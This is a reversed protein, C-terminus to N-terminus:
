SYTGGDIAGWSITDSSATYILAGDSSGGGDLASLTNATNAVLVSGKAVASLGTGGDAVALDTIGTISGGTIAVSSDELHAVLTGTTISLNGTTAGTFSGTGLTFKDASEDYGIFANDASGREIVIGSDNAPTGSTGTGLELLTDAVTTNTTAITTTTGNVTLDGAITVNNALAMTVKVDTGVKTVTATLQNNTGLIQLDDSSLTVDQTGTDGDVTLTGSSAATAVSAATLRGQADVTIVPIQTSSGYSAATVSTDALTVTASGSTAGGTLGTGAVVATIDGANATWGQDNNFQGLNIEAFRKRNTTGASSDLLLMEDATGDVAATM